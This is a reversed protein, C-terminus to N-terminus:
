GGRECVERRRNVAWEKPVRGGSWRTDVLSRWGGAKARHREGCRGGDYM